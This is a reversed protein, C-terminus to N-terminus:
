KGPPPGIKLIVRPLKKVTSTQGDQGVIIEEKAETKIASSPKQKDPSAERPPTSIGGVGGEQKRERLRMSLAPAPSTYKSVPKRGDMTNLLTIARDLWSPLPTTNSQRGGRRKKIGKEVDNLVDPTWWDCAIRAEVDTFGAVHAITGSILARDSYGGELLSVIRGGAMKDAFACADRTFRHYFEVPVTRGHRSMSQYEHECADFGCSIFVLTDDNSGGTEKVFQEAKTLLKKYPGEYLRDFFDETSDYKELHINEIYQGHPGHISVSAAQVLAAKGDECPFSLIDHLSGYYIQLGTEVVQDPSRSESQLLKRYYEENVGWAIAQTGNGHHLDIDFIVVKRIKHTLHAHAAAVAVNNVFCFGCPTDEGCHHGPPRVVCFARKPTSPASQSSHGTSSIVTDVAECVTGLAGQIADLSGPCLYLDGQPLDIPIESEGKSIKDVSNAVWDKLHELYVDRDIDGHIFKVAPNNLIDVYATSHVIRVPTTKSESPPATSAELTMQDLAKALDDSDSPDVNSAEAALTQPKLKSGVNLGELHSLAVALGAKVARVREPREVITSLDRSRIYQHKLCADQLFVVLNATGLTNLSM